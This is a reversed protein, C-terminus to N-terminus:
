HALTLSWLSRGSEPCSELLTLSVVKREPLETEKVTLHQSQILQRPEELPHSEKRRLIRHSGLVYLRYFLHLQANPVGKHLESTHGYSVHMSSTLTSIVPYNGFARKDGVVPM